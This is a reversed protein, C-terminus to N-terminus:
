NVLAELPDLRSAQRAPFYGALFVFVMTIVFVFSLHSFRYVFFSDPKSSVDPFLDLLFYDVLFTSAFVLVLSLVFAMLGIFFGESLILFRLHLRQMGLARLIGIERKREVVSVFLTNSISFLAILLVLAGIVQILLQLYWIIQAIQKVSDQLSIVKFGLAEIKTKIKENQSVDNSELYISSYKLDEETTNQFTKLLAEAQNLPITIGMVPVLNSLAVIKAPIRKTQDSKYSFFSSKGVILDLRRGILGDPSLRPLGTSEALSFNYADLLKESVVVPLYEDVEVSNIGLFEFDLGYVPVDTEFYKDWFDIQVMTPIKFTLQPSAKEVGEIKKIQTLLKEDIRLTQNQEVQFLGMNQYDYNVILQRPNLTRAVEDFAIKKIGETFSLFFFMVTIGLAVSLISLFTRIKKTKLNIWALHLITGLSM